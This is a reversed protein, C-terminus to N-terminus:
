SLPELTLHHEFHRALAQDHSVFVVSTNRARAQGLLLDIFRDRNDADLASTPEDALILAPSGILARAAAVRQQQGVSMATVKQNWLEPPVDLASLLTEAEGAPTPSTHQRRTASLRCPLLVNGIASLYPVLNFQQFIVGLYEARFRDRQGASMASLVHEMIRLEGHRPVALGALLSLLTSKGSGSAGRLFLHEGAILRIDPFKIPTSRESWAYSLDKSGVAMTKVINSSTAVSSPQTTM